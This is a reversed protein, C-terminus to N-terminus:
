VIRKTPLTLHTYSVPIIKLRQLFYQRQLLQRPTFRSKNQHSPKTSPSENTAFHRELRPQRSAVLLRATKYVSQIWKRACILMSRLENWANPWRLLLGGTLSHFYCSSYAPAWGFQTHLSSRCSICIVSLAAALHMLLLCATEEGQWRLQAVTDVLERDDAM